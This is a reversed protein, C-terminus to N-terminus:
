APIGNIMYENQPLVHVKSEMADVNPYYYQCAYIGSISSICVKLHSALLWVKWTKALKHKRIYPTAINLATKQCKANTTFILWLGLMTAKWQNPAV